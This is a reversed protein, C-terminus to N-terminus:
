RFTQFNLFSDFSVGCHLRVEIVSEVEGLQCSTRQGVAVAELKTMVTKRFKVLRKELKENM